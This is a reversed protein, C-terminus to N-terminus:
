ATSCTIFLYIFIFKFVQMTNTCLCAPLDISYLQLGLFSAVCRHDSSRQCLLWFWGSSFRCCKWCITTTWSATLMCISGNKDGQVFSLDLHILSRWMFGSMSYCGSTDGSGPGGFCGPDSSWLHPPCLMLLLQSGGSGPVWSSQWVLPMPEKWDTECGSCVKPAFEAALGVVSLPLAVGLCVLMGLWFWLIGPDWSSPWV